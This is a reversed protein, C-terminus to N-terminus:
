SFNFDQGFHEVDSCFNGPWGEGAMPPVCHHGLGIIVLVLSSGVISSLHNEVDLDFINRTNRYVWTVSKGIFMKGWM